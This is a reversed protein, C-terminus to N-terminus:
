RERVPAFFCPCVSVPVAPFLVSVPVSVCWWFGCRRVVVFSAGRSFSSGPLLGAVPSAFAGAAARSSFSVVVVWGSVSASSLVSVPFGGFFVVGGVPAAFRSIM